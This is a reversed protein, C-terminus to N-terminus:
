HIFRGWSYGGHLLTYSWKRFHHTSPVHSRSLRANTYSSRCRCPRKGCGLPLRMSLWLALVVSHPPGRPYSPLLFIVPHLRCMRVSLSPLRNTTTACGTPPGVTEARLLHQRRQWPVPLVGSLDGPRIAAIRLLEPHPHFVLKPNAQLDDLTDIGLGAELQQGRRHTTSRVNTQSPRYRQNLLSSSRHGLLLSAITYNAEM